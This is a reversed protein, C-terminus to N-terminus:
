GTENQGDIGAAAVVREAASTARERLDPYASAVGTPTGEEVVVKGDCLVTEVESGLTGYVLANIVDPAPTLRYQEFDLVVIDARKGTELSGLEDGKRISRAADITVMDLAAEPPLVGPDGGGPPAIV